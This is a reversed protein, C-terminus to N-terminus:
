PVFKRILLDMVINFANWISQGKARSYDTYVISTPCEVFALKAVRIQSIIESAHSFGNERLHIQPQVVNRECERM